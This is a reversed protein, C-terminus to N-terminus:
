PSRLSQVYAWLADIDGPKLHARYAPMRLVARNLFSRAAPNAEFRRSIGREVWEAFEARDRVLDPFDSGDWPPVYGKLSGPNPRAFRGGEGHCGVCGLDIARDLGALALSEEPAAEGSVALVFSVLDEIERKSLREGYAPMRLAGADRQARWTESRARAATVGDRIWERVEAESKAYMMLARYSPVTEDLRGPNRTGRTGEPGHCAFCAQAEALRRGREIPTLAPRLVTVRALLIAGIGAAVLLVFLLRLRPM